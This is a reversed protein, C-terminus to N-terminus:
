GISLVSCLGPRLMAAVELLDDATISAISDRVERPTRVDGKLLLRRGMSLATQELSESAVILQGLLQKRAAVLARPTLPHDAM